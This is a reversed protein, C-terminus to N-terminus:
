PIFDNSIRQSHSFKIYRMIFRSRLTDTVKAEVFVMLNNELSSPCTELIRKKLTGALEEVGGTGSCLVSICVMLFSFLMTFEMLWWHLTNQNHETRHLLMEQIHGDGKLCLQHLHGSSRAKPLPSEFACTDIAQFSVPFNM